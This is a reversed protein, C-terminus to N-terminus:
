VKGMVRNWVLISFPHITRRRKLYFKIKKTVTIKFAEELDHRAVKRIIKLNPHGRDPCAFDAVFIIKDARSMNLNGLTHSEIARLAVPDKLWGNKKAQHAGVYAHFMNPSAKKIFEVNPVPLRNKKVYSYLKRPTWEKACDHLLGARFAIEPNWGHVRGLKAAFKAVSMSHLFRKESLTEEMKEILDRHKVHM